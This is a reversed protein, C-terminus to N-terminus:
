QKKEIEEIARLLVNDWKLRNEYTSADMNENEIKKRKYYSDLSLESYIDPETGYVNNLKNNSNMGSSAMFNFVIKSNPLVETFFTDGFGEGYTNRGIVTALNNEKLIATFNDAASATNESILIYVNKSKKAKGIFKQTVINSMYKKIGSEFPLANDYTSYGLEDWSKKGKIVKTYKTIPLYNEWNSIINSSFLQPYIYTESFKLLGGSNNRLDLIVNDVQESNKLINNIQVGLKNNQFNQINIYTTKLSLDDYMYLGESDGTDEEEIEDKEFIYGYSTLFECKIDAFCSKTISKGNSLKIKLDVNKGVSDNFILVPRYIVDRTNDYRMKYVSLEERIYNDIEMNNIMELQADEGKDIEIISADPNYAYCGNVYNFILAKYEPISACQEFIIKYWYKAAPEVSLDNFLDDSNHAFHGYQMFDPFCVSTHCSPIQQLIVYMYLYFSFDDTSKNILELYKGKNNIFDIGYIKKFEDISSVSTSIIDYLIEFDQKKQELTLNMTNIPQSSGNQIKSKNILWIVIFFYLIMFILLIIFANRTKKSVKKKFLNNNKM